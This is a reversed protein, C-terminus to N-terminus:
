IAFGIAAAAQRQREDLTLFTLDRTTEALYLAAALHWCDAGRLSAHRLVLDIERRLSRDPIIWSFGATLAPDPATDARRFAALLEANLLDGAVVLDFGALRDAMTNGAPENFGIAVLVSTDVYAIRM